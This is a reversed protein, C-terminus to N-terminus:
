LKLDALLCVPLVAIHCSLVLKCYICLINSEEKLCWILYVPNNKSLISEECEGETQSFLAAKIDRELCKVLKTNCEDPFRTTFRKLCAEAEPFWELEFLCRAQRYAAKSSNSDLTLSRECDRLAAYVDGYRDFYHSAFM